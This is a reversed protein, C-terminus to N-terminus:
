LAPLARLVTAYFHILKRAGNTLGRASLTAGNLNRIDQSLRVPDSAGKGYFQDRFSPSNVEAGIAERYEMLELMGITGQPHNIRVIYTIPREKGIMNDICAYAIVKGRTSGQYCHTWGLKFPVGSNREIAEVARPDIKVGVSRIREADGLVHQVAERETLFVQVQGAAVEGFLVTLLGALLISRALGLRYMM